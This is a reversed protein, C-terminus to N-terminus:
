QQYTLNSVPTMSIVTTQSYDAVYSVITTDVIDTKSITPQKGTFTPGALAYSQASASGYVVVGDRNSIFVRDADAFDQDYGFEFATFVQSPAMPIEVSFVNWTSTPVTVAGSVKTIGVKIYPQVGLGDGAPTRRKAQINILAAYPTKTDKLGSYANKVYGNPSTLSGLMQGGTEAWKNDALRALLAIATTAVPFASVTSEQALVTAVPFTKATKRGIQGTFNTGTNDAVILSYLWIGWQAYTSAFGVTMVRVPVGARSQRAVRTTGIWLEMYDPGFVIEHFIKMRVAGYYAPYNIEVGNMTYNGNANVGIAYLGDFDIFTGSPQYTPNITLVVHFRVTDGAYNFKRQLGYVGASYDTVNARSLALAKETPDYAVCPWAAGNSYYSSAPLTYGMAEISQTFTPISANLVWTVFMSSMANGAVGLQQFDDAFILAM